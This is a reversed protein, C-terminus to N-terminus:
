KNKVSIGFPQFSNGAQTMQHDVVVIARQDANRQDLSLCQTRCIVSLNLSTYIQIHNVLHLPHM